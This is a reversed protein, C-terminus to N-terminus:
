LSVNLSPSTTSFIVGEEMSEGWDVMLYFGRRGWTFCRRCRPFERNKDGRALGASWEIPKQREFLIYGCSTGIRLSRDGLLPSPTSEVGTGFSALSLLTVGGTLSLKCLWDWGVVVGDEL